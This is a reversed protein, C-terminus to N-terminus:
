KERRQNNTKRWEGVGWVIFLAFVLLNIVIGIIWFMSFEREEGHAAKGQSKADPGIETSPYTSSKGRTNAPADQAIRSSGQVQLYPRTGYHIHDLTPLIGQGSAPRLLMFTGLLFFVVGIKIWHESM